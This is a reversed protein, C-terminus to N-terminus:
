RSSGTYARALTGVGVVAVAALLPLTLVPPWPSWALIGRGAAALRGPLSGTAPLWYVRLTLWLGLLQAPAAATLVAAPTWRGLLRGAGGVALVAIGPLAGYLYRGQMGSTRLVKEWADWSGWAVIGALCVFPVLLLLADRRAPSRLALTLLLGGVVLVAGLVAAIGAAAPLRTAGPDLWFRRNMLTGFQTLWQTGTQGFSTHAVLDPQVMKTGDPQLVGYEIKNRIWWWGGTGLGVAQATLLPLLSRRLGVRTAAVLYALGVLLPLFLGFGKTLLCGGVLLGLGAATRQRLDGRGVGAAIVSTAALLPLLLNDNNVASGIHYLQPVGLPLAAAAVAVPPPLGVRRALAFGLLPLPVLLLANVVRLWAVVRDFPQDPWHPVVALVPAMLYYYAPPHEVLQNPAPGPTEGGLDRYTPRRDRPPAKGAPLVSRVDIRGNGLFGAAGVGRSVYRTGPAPWPTADGQAAAAILDVHLPEDPGRYNPYLLTATLLMLGHLVVVLRLLSPLRRWARGLRGGRPQDDRPGSGGPGNGQALDGRARDRFPWAPRLRGPRGAHRPEAEREPEDVPPSEM